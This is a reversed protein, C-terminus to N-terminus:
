SRLILISVRAETVSSGGIGGDFAINAETPMEIATNNGADDQSWNTGTSNRVVRQIVKGDFVEPAPTDWNGGTDWTLTANGGASTTPVEAKLFIKKDDWATDGDSIYVGSDQKLIIRYKPTMKLNHPIEVEVGVPLIIDEIVQGGFSASSLNNTERNLEDAISAIEPNDSRSLNKM